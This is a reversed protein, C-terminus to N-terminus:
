QHRPTPRFNPTNENYIEWAKDLWQQVDDLTINSMDSLMVDLLDLHELMAEKFRKEDKYKSFNIIKM